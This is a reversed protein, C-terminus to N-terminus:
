GIVGKVAPVVKHHVFFGTGKVGVLDLNYRALEWGSHHTVV